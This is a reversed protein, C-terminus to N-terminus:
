RLLGENYFFDSKEPSKRSERTDIYELAGCGVGDLRHDMKIIPREEYETSEEELLDSNVFM